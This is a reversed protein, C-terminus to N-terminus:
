RGGQARLGSYRSRTAAPMLYDPAVAELATPNSGFVAPFECDCINDLEMSALNDRSMLKGPLVELVRAQLKSLAGALDAQETIRQRRKGEPAPLGGGPGVTACGCALTILSM